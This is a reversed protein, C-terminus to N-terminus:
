NSGKVRIFEQERTLAIEANNGAVPAGVAEWSGAALNTSAYLQYPPAGGSWGLVLKENRKEVSTIMIPQVDSVRHVVEVRIRDLITGNAAGTVSLM